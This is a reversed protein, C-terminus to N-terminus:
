SRTAGRPGKVKRSRAAMSRDAGLLDFHNWSVTAGRVLEPEAGGTFTALSRGYAALELGAPANQRLVAFGSVGTSFLAEPQFRVLQEPREYPLARLVTAHVVSFIAVNAGIGLALTVVAVITFAPRMRLARVGCRVDM